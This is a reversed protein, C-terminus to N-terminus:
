LVHSRAKATATSFSTSASLMCRPTKLVVRNQDMHEGDLGSHHLLMNGTLGLMRNQFRTVDYRPNPRTRKSCPFVMAMDFGMASAVFHPLRTNTKSMGFDVDDPQVLKPAAGGVDDAEVAASGGGLKHSTALAVVGM